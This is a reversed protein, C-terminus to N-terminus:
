IRLVPSEAAHPIPVVFGRVSSPRVQEAQPTEHEATPSLPSLCPVDVEPGPSPQGLGCEAFAHQESHGGHREGPSETDGQGGLTASAVQQVPASHAAGTMHASVSDISNLHGVTADPSAAHTYLLGFLILGLGLL